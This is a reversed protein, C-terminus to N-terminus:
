FFVMWPKQGCNDGRCIGLSSSSMVSGLNAAWEFIQVWTWMKWPRPSWLFKQIVHSDMLLEYIRTWKVDIIIISGTMDGNETSFIVVNKQGRKEDIKWMFRNRFDSFLYLRFKEVAVNTKPCSSDFFQM